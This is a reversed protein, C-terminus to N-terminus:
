APHKLRLVRLADPAIGGFLAAAVLILGLAVILVLARSESRLHMFTGAILGAKITMAALLGLLLAKSAGQGAAIMSLTIALLVLWTIWYRKYAM